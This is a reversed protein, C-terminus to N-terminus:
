TSEANPHARMTYHWWCKIFMMWKAKDDKVVGFYLRSIADAVTNYIGKIHLM